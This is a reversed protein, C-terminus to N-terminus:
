RVVDIALPDNLWPMAMQVIMALWAGVILMLVATSLNIAVKAAPDRMAMEKVVLALLVVVSLATATWTPMDFVAAIPPRANAEDEIMELSRVGSLFEVYPVSMSLVAVLLSFWSAAVLASRPTTDPM